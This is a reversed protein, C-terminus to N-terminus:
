GAMHVPVAQPVSIVRSIAGKVSYDPFEFGPPRVMEVGGRLLSKWADSSKPLDSNSFTSASDSAEVSVLILGFGLENV